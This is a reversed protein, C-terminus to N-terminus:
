VVEVSIIELNGKNNPKCRIKVHQGNFQADALTKATTADFTGVDQGSVVVRTLTWPKGSKQVGTKQSISEITGELAIENTASQPVPDAASNSDDHLFAPTPYDADAPVSTKVTEISQKGATTTTPVTQVVEATTERPPQQPIDAFDEIDQTVYDSAGTTTITAAVYSRKDAIKLATNYQDAIDPNEARGAQQNRIEPDDYLYQAKCDRCYWGPQAQTLHNPSFKSRSITGDAGCKPCSRQAKRWRYKSEMTSCSGSGEGVAAGTAKSYMTCYSIIERHGNGLDRFEHKYEPRIQFLKSLMEAGSKLLTPKDGCGPIKGYHQGEKMLGKICQEILQIQAAVDQITIAPLTQVRDAMQLATTQDM